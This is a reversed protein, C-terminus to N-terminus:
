ILYLLSNFFIVFFTKLATDITKIADTVFATSKPATTESEVFNLKLEIKQINRYNVICTRTQNLFSIMQKKEEKEKYLLVMIVRM